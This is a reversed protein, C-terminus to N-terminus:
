VTGQGGIPKNSLIVPSLFADPPTIESPTNAADHCRTVIYLYLEGSWTATSQTTGDAVVSATNSTVAIQSQGDSYVIFQTDEIKIVFNAGASSASYNSSRNDAHNACLLLSNTPVSFGALNDIGSVDDCIYFYINGTRANSSTNVTDPMTIGSFSFHIYNNGRNLNDTNFIKTYNYSYGAAGTYNSTFGGRHYKNVSSTHTGPTGSTSLDPRYVTWNDLDDIDTASVAWMNSEESYNYSQYRDTFKIAM